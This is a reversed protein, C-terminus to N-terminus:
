LTNLRSAVAEVLKWAAVEPATNSDSPESM